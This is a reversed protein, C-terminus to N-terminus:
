GVFGWRECDSVPSYGIKQYISNSVPNALDTFLFCRNKGSDLAHQSVHAVLNSAYGCGRRDPPTYVPGVRAGNPTQGGLGALATPECDVWLFAQGAAIMRDARALMDENFSEGIDAYFGAIFQTVTARDEPACIRMAGSAPSPWQVRELQFVRLRVDCRAQRGTREAFREALIRVSPVIGNMGTGAWKRVAMEEALRLMGVQSGGSVALWKKLTQIAVLDLRDGDYVAWMQPHDLDDISQPQCGDRILRHILGILVCNEAESRLLHEGVADYFTHPTEFGVFRLAM